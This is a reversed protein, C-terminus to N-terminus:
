QRGALWREIKAELVPLPLSGGGVVQGHFERADFREGLRQEARQRLEAIRLQGIKYGLVEAPRAIVRDVEASIEAEGLASHARLYDIARSREWRRAHVGTDVVLLAAQALEAALAGAQAVPDTIVGLESGLTTAYLSWGDSYGADRGFRRFRPLQPTQQALAIRYHNGPMDERLCLADISHSRRTPLDFTNLHVVGPRAGDVSPPLYSAATAAAARFDEVARTGPIARPKRAFLRALNAEVRPRLRDCAWLLDAASALQFRPDGRLTELLAPLDGAVGLAPQLRALEAQLRAVERLGLEHV